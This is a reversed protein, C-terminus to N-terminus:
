SAGGGDVIRDEIEWLHDLLHWAVYRVFYRAPWIAGGRPGREPIEGREAAALADLIAQRTRRLAESLTEAEGKKVKRALRALYSADAGLVHQVIRELDRGGGRPGRRLEKGTAQQVAADFAQWCAQLLAQFRQFEARDVPRRDSAPTIDPAGFDTTANGQLRESVAFASTGAPPQFEVQAARLIRAYRPGYDALAQLASGEDRGSRCWGPWEIAGAFTRKKGIELYVEITNSTQM